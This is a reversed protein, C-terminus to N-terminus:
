WLQTNGSYLVWASLMANTVGHAAAADGLSGRRRYAWAYGVGAVSGALWRDGHMMGFAVSSALWAWAHFRRPDVATFDASVLRRLLFGRFALEEALPVTISTGLVRAAIWGIRLALPLSALAGSLTVDAPAPWFRELALWLACVAVGAAPAAWGIRWDIRRYEARYRWLAAVAALVRLPYLWEFADSVARSLLGAALIALFPMLWPAAWDGTAASAPATSGLPAARMWAIRGSGWCLALSVSVFAIWGAQSHFGGAAVGEFGARGIATLAAIRVANLLWIAALGAPILTLARPFRYERRFFWLWASAFVLVLAMGELGSCEPAIQVEFSGAGIVLRAPDSHVDHFFLRLLWATLSYTLSAAPRWFSRAAGTLAVAAVSAALGFLWAGSTARLLKAWMRAPLAVLAAALFAALGSLGWVLAVASGAGHYLNMSLATFLALAAFHAPVLRWALPTQSAEAAIREVATRAMAQGTVVGILAFAVSLRLGTAGWRALLAILLQDRRLDRNDLWISIALVELLCVCALTLVRSALRTPRETQQNEL